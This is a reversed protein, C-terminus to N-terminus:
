WARLTRPQRARTPQAHACGRTRRPWRLTRRAPGRVRTAGSSPSPGDQAAVAAVSSGLCAGRTLQTQCPRGTTKGPRSVVGLLRQRREFPARVQRRSPRSHAVCRDVRRVGLRLAMCRMCALSYLHLAGMPRPSAGVLPEVSECIGSTPGPARLVKSLGLKTAIDPHLTIGRM